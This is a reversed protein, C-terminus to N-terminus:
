DILLLQFDPSLLIQKNKLYGGVPTPLFILQQKTQNPLKAYCNYDNIGLGLIIKINSGM